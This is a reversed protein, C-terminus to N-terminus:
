WVGGAALWDSFARVDTYVGSEGCDADGRSTVGIVELHGARKIYAPGGSDGRCASKGPRGGYGLEHAETNVKTVAVEVKQLKGADAEDSSLGDRLGYGALTLTAGTALARDDPAVAVPEYAPPADRDLILVAIDNPPGDPTANDLREPRFEEHQWGDAVAVVKDSHIASRRADVGFAVSLQDPRTAELCHAATLVRRRGVLTGSCLLDHTDSMVLAVTSRAILENGRVASGGVISPHSVNPSQVACGIAAFLGSLVLFGPGKM